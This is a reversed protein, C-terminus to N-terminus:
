QGIGRGLPAKCGKKNRKDLKEQKAKMENLAAKNSTKASKDSKHWAAFTHQTATGVNM